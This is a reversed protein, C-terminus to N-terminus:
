DDTSTASKKIESRVGGLTRLANMLSRHAERIHGKAEAAVNRVREFNEQAKDGSIDVSAFLAISGKALGLHNKAEAVYTETQATNGGLAKVKQIRSELRVIIKELREVTASLVRATNAAKRKALSRQTEIRKATSSAKRAELEKREEVRVKVPTTSSRGYINVKGEEALAPSAISALALLLIFTIIKRNM